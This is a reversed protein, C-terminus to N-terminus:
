EEGEKQKIADRLEELADVAGEHYDTSKFISFPEWGMNVEDIKKQNCSIREAIMQLVEELSM